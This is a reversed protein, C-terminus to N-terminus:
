LHCRNTLEPLIIVIHKAKEFAKIGKQNLYHMFLQRILKEEREQIVWTEILNYLSGLHSAGQHV